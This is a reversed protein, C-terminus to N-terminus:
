VDITIGCSWRGSADPACLLDHLSAGKPVAGTIEAENVDALPLILVVGGEPASQVAPTVPIEGDAGLRYIVEEVVAVLLDEDSCAVFRREAIHRPRAATVVAFSDVLGQVAEALCTERTPGWAEVRRDAAHPVTRHGQGAGQGVQQRLRALEEEVEAQTSIRDLHAQLDAERDAAHLAAMDADAVDASIGAFVEAISARARAVTYAAKITEKRVGFADIKEQLGREAAAMTEEDARLAAQQERLRSVQALMATRRALAQRALDDQGARAAQEAQVDLRGAAQQLDSIRLDARRRAAAIRAAGRHVESLLERLQVYSYDVMERPDTARELAANLKAEYLEAIRRAISMTM